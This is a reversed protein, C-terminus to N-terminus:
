NRRKGAPDSFHFLGQVCATLEDVARKQNASEIDGILVNGGGEIKCACDEQIASAILNTGSAVQGVHATQWGPGGLVPGRLLMRGDQCGPGSVHRRYHDAVVM